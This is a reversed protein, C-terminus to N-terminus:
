TALKGTSKGTAKKKRTIKKKELSEHYKSKPARVKKIISESIKTDAAINKISGDSAEAHIISSLKKRTTKVVNNQKEIDPIKGKSASYKPIVYKYVLISIIIIGAFVAAILTKNSSAPEQLAEGTAGGSGGGPEGSSATIIDQMQTVPKPPPIPYIQKGQPDVVLVKTLKMEPNNKSVIATANIIIFTGSTTVNKPGLIAGYINVAKGISNDIKGKDFLTNIGSQKLFNGETISNIMISSSDFELDLSAAAVHEGEPDIIVNVDFMQGGIINPPIDLIVNAASVNFIGTILFVSLFFGLRTRNMM